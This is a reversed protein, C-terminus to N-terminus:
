GIPLDSDDDRFSAASAAPAAPPPTHPERTLDDSLLRVRGEADIFDGVQRILKLGEWRMGDSRTKTFGKDIMADSFGKQADM